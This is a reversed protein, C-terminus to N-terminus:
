EANSLPFPLTWLKERTRDKRSWRFITPNRNNRMEREVVGLCCCGARLLSNNVNQIASFNRKTTDAAAVVEEVASDVAAGM